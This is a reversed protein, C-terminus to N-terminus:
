GIISSKPRFILTNSLIVGGVNSLIVGGLGKYLDKENPMLERQKSVDLYYEYDYFSFYKRQDTDNIFM